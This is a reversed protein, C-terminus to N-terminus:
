AGTSELRYFAKMLCHRIHGGGDNVLIKENRSVVRGFQTFAIRQAWRLEPCPSTLEVLYRKSPGDELIVNQENVYQWGRINFNVLNDVEEAIRLNKEALVQEVTKGTEKPEGVGACGALIATLLAVSLFKFRTNM